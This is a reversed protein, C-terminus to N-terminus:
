NIQEITSLIFRGYTCIIKQSFNRQLRDEMTLQLEGDAGENIPSILPIVISTGKDFYHPFWTAIGDSNLFGEKPSSISKLVVDEGYNVITVSSLGNTTGFRDIRINPRYKADIEQQELNEIRKDQKKNHCFMLVFSGATALAGIAMISDVLYEFWTCM